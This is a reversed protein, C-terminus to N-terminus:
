ERERRQEQRVTQRRRRYTSAERWRWRWRWSGMARCRCSRVRLRRGDAGSARPLAPLPRFYTVLKILHELHLIALLYTYLGGALM